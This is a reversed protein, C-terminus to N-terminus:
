YKIQTVVLVMVGVIFVGIVLSAAMGIVWDILEPKYKQYGLERAIEESFIPKLSWSIDKVRM